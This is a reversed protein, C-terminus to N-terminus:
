LNRWRARGDVRDMRDVCVAGSLWAIPRGEPVKQEVLRVIDAYTLEDIRKTIM